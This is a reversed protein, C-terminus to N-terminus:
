GPLAKCSGDERNSVGMELRMSSGGAFFAAHVNRYYPVERAARNVTRRVLEWQKFVLEEQSKWQSESLEKLARVAYEGKLVQVLLWYIYRAFFAYLSM